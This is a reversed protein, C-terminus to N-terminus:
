EASLDVLQGVELRVIERRTEAWGRIAQRDADTAQSAESRLAAPWGSAFAGALVLGRADVLDCFAQWLEQRATDTLDPALRADVLFGYTPCPASM